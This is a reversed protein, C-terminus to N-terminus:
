LVFSIFCEIICSKIIISPTNDITASVNNSYFPFFYFLRILPAKSSSPALVSFIKLLFNEYGKLLAIKYVVMNLIIYFYFGSM